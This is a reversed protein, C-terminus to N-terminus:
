GSSGAATVSKTFFVRPFGQETARHTEAYGLHAYMALNETMLENTYLRVRPLGLERCRQEALGVLARGLGRGQYAPGVAVIDLLLADPELVLVLFAVIGDLDEDVVWVEDDRVHAGYDAVAPWPLRGIRPEYVQYAAVAVTTIADVDGPVARRTTM